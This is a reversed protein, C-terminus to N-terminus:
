GLDSPKVEKTTAGQQTTKQLLNKSFWLPRPRHMEVIRKGNWFESPESGKEGDYLVVVDKDDPNLGLDSAIKEQILKTEDQVKQYCHASVDFPLPVFKKWSLLGYFSKRCLVGVEHDHGCQNCVRLTQKPVLIKLVGQPSGFRRKLRKEITRRTRPVAWFIGDGILDKISFPKSSPSPEGMPSYSPCAAVCLPEIFHVFIVM